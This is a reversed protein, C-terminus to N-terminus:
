KLSLKNLCYGNSFDSTYTKGVSNIVDLQSFDSTQGTRKFDFDDMTLVDGKRVDKNLIAAKKMVGFSSYEREGLNMKLLGDGNAEEVISLMETLNNFTDINIAAQWDTRGKGTSISTHKEIYSMGLSAGLLSILINHEHDWATHDAYGHEYHPFMSMIRRMKSFNIDGYKTPYNQFGHMLVINETDIIKIANEVEYLDTGGVGLVVKTDKKLSTQLHKLLKIDNLCVSHIEVLEPAFSMGFDIAKRDNFLLMPKKDHSLAINIIEKWQTESFICNKVWEYGPHDQHIYEDVDLTIHFKVYDTKTKQVINTILDKFFNFDGDHHWATEAITKVKVSM